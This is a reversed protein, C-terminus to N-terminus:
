QMALGVSRGVAQFGNPNWVYAVNSKPVQYSSIMGREEPFARFLHCVEGSVSGNPLYNYDLDGNGNQDFGKLLAQIEEFTVRKDNNSDAKVFMRELSVWSVNVKDHYMASQYTQELREAEFGAGRQLSIAGDRNQDYQYFIHQAIAQIAVM